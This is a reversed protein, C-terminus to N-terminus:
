LCRRVEKKRDLEPPIYLPPPNKYLFFAEELFVQYFTPLPLTKLLNSGLWGLWWTVTLFAEM